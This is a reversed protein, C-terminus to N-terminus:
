SKWKFGQQWATLGSCEPQFQAVRVPEVFGGFFSLRVIEDNQERIFPLLDDCARFGSEGIMARCRDDTLRTGSNNERGLGVGGNKTGEIFTVCVHEHEIQAVFEDKGARIVITRDNSRLVDAFAFDDLFQPTPGRSPLGGTVLADDLGMERWELQPLQGLERSHNAVALFGEALSQNGRDTGKAEVGSPEGVPM